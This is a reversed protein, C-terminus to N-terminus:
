RDLVALFVTRDREGDPRRYAMVSPGDGQLAQVLMKETDDDAYVGTLEFKPMWYPFRNTSLVPRTRICLQVDVYSVMSGPDCEVVVPADEPLDVVVLTELAM